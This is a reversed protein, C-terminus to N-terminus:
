DKEEGKDRRAVYTHSPIYQKPSECAYESCHITDAILTVALKM